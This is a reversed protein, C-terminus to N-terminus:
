TEEQSSATRSKEPMPIGFAGYIHLPYGSIARSAMQGSIVAAEVCGANLYNYTWDGALVLNEFGSEGPKLRYRASGAVSLVYRESPDVNASVFQWKLREAGSRNTSDRLLEWKLGNPNTPHTGKPWIPRISSSLFERTFQKVRELQQVPFESNYFQPPATKGENLCNCFYAIQRVRDQEQWEESGILHSM